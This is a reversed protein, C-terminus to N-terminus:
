HDFRKPPRKTRSSRRLNLTTHQTQNDKYEAPTTMHTYSEDESSPYDLLNHAHNTTPKPIKKFFSSNRTTQSGKHTTTIMSGKKKIITMPNPQYPTLAKSTNDSKVIVTDGVRLDNPKVYAKRDAYQKIKREAKTDRERISPDEAIPTILHPLRNKITRGFLITAPPAGTTCHPTTRYDLLFKFLEQKWSRGKNLAAKISKKVTHMFHETEGNAQPWLPTIRRHRFGTISAYTKFEHSNFPPGNDTKLSVPVGFEAFIKDLRPIVSTTSISDLIDVVVYRSYEDTVVLLYKGNQLHGFDASVEAWPAAPLPSMQLPERTLKHTSIQCTHCNKINEEVLPQMNKFWVKERLLAMTKVIGQHGAHAIKVARNQLAEPLVIRHGKLIISDKHSLSLEARNAHLTHFTAKNIGDEVGHWKNTLIAQIVTTLTKDKATEMAVEDITMAKPASTSLIYNIYEEAIKQERDSPPLHMPHRSLYDAPNDHGPRYIVTMDYPQTRLVWREIRASLQSCTNNFISTLPKQDTFVTFPAGFIYIHFHECTWTIALAERETQSYRQEVASLARSAFQVIWGNQSLVASIGVPSADTHIETHKNPDFYALSCARSLAEKINKLYETHHETWSWQTNKKTLQRLEHTLTAYNPIFEAGCFNTIGLLSRVKSAKKPDPLGLIAKIKLDSPSIGENGFTHGLFELSRKNYECKSGNLTLGKERLRKFIAHLNQDHDQQDSGICLIDDSINIAGKIGTLAQSIEEQFIESASNVGFFLRKYRYLGLHTAFTTIYRSEEALELQNYGQNLDLKSFVYAGSLITKLENLTPTPHWKRKIAKNAANM